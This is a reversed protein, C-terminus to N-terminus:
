SVGGIFSDVSCLLHNSEEPREPPGQPHRRGKRLRSRYAGNSGALHRLSPHQVLAPAPASRAFQHSEHYFRFM